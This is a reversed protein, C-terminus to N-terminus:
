CVKTFTVTGGAGPSVAVFDHGTQGGGVVGAPNGDAVYAAVFTAGSPLVLYSSATGNLGGAVSGTYTEWSTPSPVAFQDNSPVRGVDGQADVKVGYITGDISFFLLGNSPVCTQTPPPTPPPTGGSAADAVSMGVVQIAPVAWVLAGGAAGTKILTRRSLQSRASRTAIPAASRGM